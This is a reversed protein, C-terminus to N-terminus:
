ESAEEKRPFRTKYDQWEQDEGLLEDMETDTCLHAVNAPVALSTWVRRFYIHMPDGFYNPQNNEKYWQAEHDRLPKELAPHIVLWVRADFGPTYEQMHDAAQKPTLKM